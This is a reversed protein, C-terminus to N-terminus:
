ILWWSVAIDVAWATAIGVVVGALIEGRSHGVRERLNTLKGQEAYVRNIAIAQKEVQRRLSYADLMIVFAVTVAVGFAPHDIGERLAILAAMSSVITSHNSPLGGYGVQHYAPRGARITNIFFKITGAMVWAIFPTLAYGFDMAVGRRALYDVHIRWDM